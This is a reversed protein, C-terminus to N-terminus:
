PGQTSPPSSMSPLPAPAAISAGTAGDAATYLRHPNAAFMNQNAYINRLLQQAAERAAARVIEQAIVDAQVAQQVAQQAAQQAAAQQSNQSPRFYIDLAAKLSENEQKLKKVTSELAAIQADKEEGEMKRRKRSNAASIKNRERKSQKMPSNEDSKEEENISELDTDPSKKRKARRPRMANPSPTAALSPSTPSRAQIAKTDAAAAAASMAQPASLYNTAASSSSSAANEANNEIFIVPPVEILNMKQLNKYADSFSMSHDYYFGHQQEWRDLLTFDNLADDPHNFIEVLMFVQVNTLPIVNLDFEENDARISLGKASLLDKTVGFKEIQKATVTYKM